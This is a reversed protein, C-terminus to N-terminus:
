LHLLFVREGREAWTRSPPEGHGYERVPVRRVRDPEDEAVVLVHELLEFTVQACLLTTFQAHSSTSLNQEGACAM